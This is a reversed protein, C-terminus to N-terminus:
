SKTDIIQMKWNNPKLWYGVTKKIDQEILDLYHKSYKAQIDITIKKKFM